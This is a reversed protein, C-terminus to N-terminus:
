RSEPRRLALRREKPVPLTGPLRGLGGALRAAPFAPFSATLALALRLCALAAGAGPASGGGPRPSSPRPEGAM